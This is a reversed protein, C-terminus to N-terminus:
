GSTLLHDIYNGDATVDLLAGKLVGSSYDSGPNICITKGIRRDGHAEHIHGHLGVVPQYREIAARVATSGAPIEVPAGREVVPAFRADLKVVTDLGSSYPPCHFNFLLPGATARPGVIEDIRRALDAEDRERETAWPTRNTDGLSAILMPGVGVVIGEPCEVKGAEALVPDIEHPDDNGPTILCRVNEPLREKALAMWSRVQQTILEQFLVRQHAPDSALREHEDPECVLPYLGNFKVRAEVAALDASSVGGQEGHFRFEYRDAGVKIIPVIAKGAIDGGLILANAQYAAGAALFKRFCRDSGHIDTAFFYRFAARAPRTLRRKRGLM